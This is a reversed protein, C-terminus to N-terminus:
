IHVFKAFFFVKKYFPDAADVMKKAFTCLVSNALLIAPNPRCNHPSSKSKDMPILKTFKIIEALLENPLHHQFDM